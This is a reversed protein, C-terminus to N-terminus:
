VRDTKSSDDRCIKEASEKAQDRVTKFRQAAVKDHFLVDLEGFTLGKPEPLRYWIWVACIATLGAWFLAARAGWNWAAPNLMYPTIAFNFFNVLNYAGRALAITKVRLRVAPLESVLSYCISGISVNYVIVYILTLIAIAWCATTMATGGTAVGVIGIALLLCFVTIFGSFYLTRRGFYSMAIWSLMTGLFGLSYQGLTMSYSDSPSLGVQQFLYASYRTLSCQHFSPLWGYRYGMFASGCLGQSAWVCCAIETRRLNVGRFCEMYSTGQMKAKEDAITQKMMAITEDPNFNPRRKVSTLRCLAKRADEIRDHGILWWPSEPAFFLGILIPVPWVWQLRYPLRFALDGELHLVGRITASAAMQGIVWCLNVYTTLYSRLAVPM